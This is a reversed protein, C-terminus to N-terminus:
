HERGSQEVGAAMAEAIRALHDRQADSRATHPSPREHAKRAAALADSEDTWREGNLWTAAHPIFKPEDWGAKARELGGILITEEDFPPLKKWAQKFAQRAAAKSVKRPYAAWFVAFGADEREREGRSNVSRTSPHTNPPDPPSSPPFVPEQSAGTVDRTADRTIDRTIDQTRERIRDRYAKQRKAAGSSSTAMAELLTIADDITLGMDRMIKLVDPSM